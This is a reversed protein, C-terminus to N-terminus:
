LGTPLYVDSERGLPHKHGSVFLLLNSLQLYDALFWHLHHITHASIIDGRCHV